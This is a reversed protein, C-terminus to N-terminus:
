RGARAARRPRSTSSSRRISGWSRRGARIGRLDRGHDRRAAHQQLDQGGPRRGPRRRPDGGQGDERPIPEGQRFRRRERRGHLDAHRGRGRRHRRLGARRGDHLGGGASRGRGGQRHRRRHDLLGDPDCDQARRWVRGRPLGAAVHKGAPLMTVVADADKCADAASKARKCGREVAHALRKRASTSPASKM